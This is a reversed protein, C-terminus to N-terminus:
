LPLLLRGSAQVHHNLEHWRTALSVLRGTFWAPPYARTMGTRNSRFWRGRSSYAVGATAKSSVGRSCLHRLLFRPRKRQRIIIARLRRRIHADIYELARVAEATCLRFHAM